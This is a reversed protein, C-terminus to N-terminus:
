RLGRLGSMALSEDLPKEWRQGSTNWMEKCVSLACGLACVFLRSCLRTCVFLCVHVQILELRLLPSTQSVKQANQSSVHTHVRAFVRVFDRAISVWRKVSMNQRSTEAAGKQQSHGERSQKRTGITKQEGKDVSRQSRGDRTRGTEYSIERALGKHPNRALVSLLIRHCGCVSFRIGGM